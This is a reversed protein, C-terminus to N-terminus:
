PQRASLSRALLYISPYLFPMDPPVQRGLLESLDGTLVLAAASDVGLQELRLDTGIEGPPVGLLGALRMVLWERLAQEDM